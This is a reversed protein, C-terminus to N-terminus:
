FARPHSEALLRRAEDAPHLYERGGVGILVRTLDLSLARLDAWAERERRIQIQFVFENMAGIVSRNRTPGCQIVRMAQREREIAESTVGLDALTEAIADPIRDVLTALERAPLVVPLRSVENVLLVLHAPRVILITAYWDGLVTTSVADDAAPSAPLRTLLKRTCRLVLM